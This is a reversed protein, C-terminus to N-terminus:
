VGRVVPQGPVLAAADVVGQEILAADVMADLVRSPVILRGRVRVAPFEHAAIARYLTMPSMGFMRAVEAVSYFRQASDDNENRDPRRTRSRRASM